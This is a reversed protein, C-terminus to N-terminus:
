STSPRLCAPVSMVWIGVSGSSAVITSRAARPSRSLTRNSPISTRRSRTSEHKSRRSAWMYSEVLLGVSEGFREPVLGAGVHHRRGTHHRRKSCDDDSGVDQVLKRATACSSSAFVSIVDRPDRHDPADMDLIARSKSGKCPADCEFLRTRLSTQRLIATGYLGQLWRTYRINICRSPNGLQTM